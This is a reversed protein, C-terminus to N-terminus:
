PKDGPVMFLNLGTRSFGEESMLFDLALTAIDDAYPEVHPDSELYFLKLYTHCQACSEAKASSRDGEISLYAMDATSGCSVCTLRPMYWQAACLGCVLYRLKRDGLVIGAIPPSACVPCTGMTQRPAKVAAMGALATWNTQLAAGLLPVCALDLAGCNGALVAEAASDLEEPSYGSLREIAARSLPPLSAQEMESLIVSLAQRWSPDRQWASTSLPFEQQFTKEGPEFRVSALAVMQANALLAMATLYDSVAHEAALSRFRSRRAAFVEQAVPLRLVPIEEVSGGLSEIM